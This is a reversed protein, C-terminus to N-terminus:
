FIIPYNYLHATIALSVITLSPLLTTTTTPAASSELNHKPKLNRNSRTTSAFYYGDTTSAHENDRKYSIGDDDDDDRRDGSGSGSLDDSGSSDGSGYIDNILSEVDEGNFADQLKATMSRLQAMQYDLTTKMKRMEPDSEESMNDDDSDVTTWDSDKGKNAWCDDDDDPTVATVSSMNGMAVKYKPDPSMGSALKADKCVFYPVNVWFDKAIKVKDIIDRVLRHISTGAATIPRKPNRKTTSWDFRSVDAQRRVRVSPHGCKDKAQETVAKARNQFTMIAGSIKVNIPNIVAEINFPGHLLQTIQELSKIYANWVENFQKHYPQCAQITKICYNTCPKKHPFQQCKQCHMMEAMRRMCAQSPELKSVTIIVDRGISLGQVFTRAVIFSQKVRSSLKKPIDMFPHLSKMHSGVCELHHESMQYQSNILEYMKKLLNVFFAMLTDKLDVDHGRYYSNLTAFLKSFIVANQQYLLGYTKVFMTHLDNYSNNLLAKFFEDFKNTRSIFLSRLPDIAKHQLMQYEKASLEVLQNEMSQTCCTAEGSSCLQGPSGPIVKDPIHVSRNFTIDRLSHTCTLKAGNRATSPHRCYGHNILVALIIIWSFLFPISRLRDTSASLVGCLSRVAM